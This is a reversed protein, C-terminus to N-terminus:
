NQRRGITELNRRFREWYEQAYGAISGAMEKRSNGLGQNYSKIVFEQYRASVTPIQRMLFQIFRAAIRVSFDPDNLDKVQAQPAYDRATPLTLQMLGWSKGDSSKSGDADGPSAIGRKVSPHEGLSSENMAIAKLWTWPVGYQAGYKKFLADWRTWSDSNVMIEEKIKEKGALAAVAVLGLLSIVPDPM